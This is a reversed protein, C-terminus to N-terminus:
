IDVYKALIVWVAGLDGEGYMASINALQIYIKEGGSSGSSANSENIEDEDKRIDELAQRAVNGYALTGDYVYLYAYEGLADKMSQIGNQTDFIYTQPNQLVVEMCFAVAEDLATSSSVHKDADRSLNLMAILQNRLQEGGTLVVEEEEEQDVVTEENSQLLYENPVMTYGCGGLMVSLFWVLLVCTLTNTKTKVNCM